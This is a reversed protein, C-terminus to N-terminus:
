QGPEFTCQAGNGAKKMIENPDITCDLKSISEVISGAAGESSAGATLGTASVENAERGTLTRKRVGFTLDCTRTTIDVNNTRCVISDATVSINTNPTFGFNTRGGFLRAIIRRDFPRLLPSYPAIVAALALAAPGTATVPAAVALQQGIITFVALLIFRKMQAAERDFFDRPKVVLALGHESCLSLVSGSRQPIEFWGDGNTRSQAVQRTEGFSAGWLTMTRRTPKAVRQHGKPSRRCLRKAERVLDPNVEGWSKRGECKGGEARKRERAPFGRSEPFRAAEVRRRGTRWDRSVPM